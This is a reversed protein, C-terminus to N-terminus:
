SESVLPQFQRWSKEWSLNTYFQLKELRMWVWQLGVLTMDILNFIYGYM